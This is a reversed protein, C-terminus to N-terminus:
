IVKKLEPRKIKYKASKSKVKIKIQQYQNELSAMVGFSPM